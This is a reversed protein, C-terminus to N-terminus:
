RLKANYNKALRDLIKDYSDKIDADTLTKNDDRFMLSVAVSKMDAGLKNDEYVDLQRKLEFAEAICAAERNGQKAYVDSLLAFDSTQMALVSLLDNNFYKSDDGKDFLPDFEAAKVSALLSPNSLSKAFYDKAIDTSNEDLTPNSTYVKGLVSQYVAALAPQNATLKKEEEVMVKVESELSDPTISTVADVHKLRAKLLHGYQKKKAALEIISDLTKIQDRPMDKSVAEEYQKWLANLDQSSINMHAFVLLIVIGFFRLM